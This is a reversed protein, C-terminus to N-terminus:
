PLRYGRGSGLARASHAAPACRLCGLVLKPLRKSTRRVGKMALAALTQRPRDGSSCAQLRSTVSGPERAPGRWLPWSMRVGDLRGSSAEFSVRGGHGRVVDRVTAMRISCSEESAEAVGGADRPASNRSNRQISIEATQAGAGAASSVAACTIEDGSKAARLLESIVGLFSQELLQPVAAVVLRQQPVVARVAVGRRIMEETHRRATAGLLPAIDVAALHEEIWSRELQALSNLDDAIEELQGANHQVMEVFRRARELEDLAGGLLTASCGRIAAVPARLERSLRSVLLRFEGAEKATEDRRLKLLLTPADAVRDSLRTWRVVLARGCIVLAIDTFRLPGDGSADAPAGLVAQMPDGAMLGSLSAGIRLTGPPLGMLSEALCDFAQITGDTRVVLLGEDM